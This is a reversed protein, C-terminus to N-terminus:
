LPYFVCAGDLTETWVVRLAHVQAWATANSAVTGTPFLGGKPNPGFAEAAAIRGVRACGHIRCANLIGGRVLDRDRKARPKTTAM